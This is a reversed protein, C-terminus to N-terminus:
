NRRRSSLPVGFERLLAGSLDKLSSVEHRLPRSSLLVGPVSAPDMCHDGGWDDLNDSLIAAPVEGLASASSCRTGKAYGILLDPSRDPHELPSGSGGTVQVATVIPKETVPDITARLAASIEAALSERRGPDVIGFRERGKVNIYLGNLGLGYARTRAWDINALMPARRRTPDVVKLYGHQELWSNLHVSRRWSAFGHDSMVVLLATPPMRELTEGVIEDLGVYLDEIVRVYPADRAADSAPHGPDMVRWMVHSVQDVHGFYHFLLGNELQSLLYQYQRRNEAATDAAQRLFEDTDFVGALFGKTEEPMGQTYFRGSAEALDAAYSPPTSIPLAPALPDLNVPTVYLAVHPRVQKLYFRCIGSLSQM